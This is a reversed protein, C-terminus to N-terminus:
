PLTVSAIASDAVVSGNYEKPVSVPKLIVQARPSTCLSGPQSKVVLTLQNRSFWLKRFIASKRAHSAQKGFHCM